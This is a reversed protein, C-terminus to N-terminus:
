GTSTALGLVALIKRQFFSRVVAAGSARLAPKVMLFILFAGLWVLLAIERSNLEIM